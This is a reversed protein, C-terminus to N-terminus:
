GQVILITHVEITGDKKPYDIQFLQVPKLGNAKLQSQVAELEHYYFYMRHGSSGTQYGSLSPAGAVFSLYLIGNSHLLKKCDSLFKECDAESLYPLCFGCVIADYHTKISGIERCDMVTFSATPNNAKALEIMQPSTDIAELTCDPRKGLIYKTINGPGCGIEFISVQPPLLTCLVDYTHNYLPLDMFTEQYLKAVKDWSHFTETYKEDESM